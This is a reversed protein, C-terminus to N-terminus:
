SRRRRRRPDLVHIAAWALAGAALFLLAAVVASVADDTEGSEEVLNRVNLFGLYGLFGAAAALLLFGLLRM